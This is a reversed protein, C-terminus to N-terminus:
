RYIVVWALMIIVAALVVGMVIVTTGSFLGLLHLRAGWAAARAEARAAQEREAKSLEPPPGPPVPM